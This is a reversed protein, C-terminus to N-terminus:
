LTRLFKPLKADAELRDISELTREIYKQISPVIDHRNLEQAYVIDLSTKLEEVRLEIPRKKM